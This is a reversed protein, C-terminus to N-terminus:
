SNLGGFFLFLLCQGVDWNKSCPHACKTKQSRPDGFWLNLFVFSFLERPALQFSIRAQVHCGAAPIRAQSARFAEENLGFLCRWLRRLEM